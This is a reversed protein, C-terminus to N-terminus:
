PPERRGAVQGRTRRGEDNRDARVEAAVPCRSRRRHETEACSTGTLKEMLKDGLQQGGVKQMLKEM